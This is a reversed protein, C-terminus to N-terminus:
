KEVMKIHCDRPTAVKPNRNDPPCLYPSAASVTQDDIKVSHIIGPHLTVTELDFAVVDRARVDSIGVAPIVVPCWLYALIDGIGQM